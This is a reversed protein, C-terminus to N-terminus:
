QHNPCYCLQLAGLMPIERFRPYPGRLGSMLRLVILGPGLRKNLLNGNGTTLRYDATKIRDEVAVQYDM